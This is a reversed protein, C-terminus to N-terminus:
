LRAGLAAGLRGNAYRQGPASAGRMSQAPPAPQEPLVGRATEPLVGRQQRGLRAGALSLALWWWPLERPSPPATSVSCGDSSSARPSATPLAAPSSPETGGGAGASGAEAPPSAEGMDGPDSPPTGLFGLADDSTLSLVAKGEVVSINAPSHVSENFPSAWTASSWGNDLPADFDDRWAERFDTGGDGAGPSYESYSVWNLYQHVPLTEASFNGGFGANGVWLNFRMQMGPVANEEFAQLDAGTIRRVETGDLLWILHDPTWEVAHTHYGTCLDATSVIDQTHNAEPLGYLANSSYGMCRAGLKEIDIENWFVAPLESGDKWLFFTSVVGDGPAFQIRAAFRGYRFHEGRILEAGSVAVAAPSVLLSAALGALSLRSFFPHHM